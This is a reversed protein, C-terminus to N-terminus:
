RLPELAGWAPPPGGKLALIPEPPDPPRHSLDCNDLQSLTQPLHCQHCTAGALLDGTSKSVKVEERWLQLRIGKGKFRPPSTDQNVSAPYCIISVPYLLLFKSEQHKNLLM